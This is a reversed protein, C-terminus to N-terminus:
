VSKLSYQQTDFRPIWLGRDTLRPFVEPDVLQSFYRVRALVLCKVTGFLNWTTIKNNNIKYDTHIHIGVTVWM